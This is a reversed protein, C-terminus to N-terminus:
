RRSIRLMENAGRQFEYPVRVRSVLFGASQIVEITAGLHRSPQAGLELLPFIRVESAVRALERISEIHFTLDRQESYLFLFHSCLALDFAQDSFPLMPLAAEIYRGAAKGSPYDDLFKSMASMRDALLEDVSSFHSWVFENAHRRTQEAVTVATQEIRTRIAAASFRYLPDVSVVNYGQQKALANFSAPGDGCGLIRRDLEVESLAFMAGYEEFTRGWPVVDALTFPM